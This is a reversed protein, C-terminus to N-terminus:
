EVARREQLNLPGPALTDPMPNSTSGYLSTNTSLESKTPQLSPILALPAPTDTSPPRNSTFRVPMLSPTRASPVLQCSALLSKAPKEISALSVWMWATLIPPHTKEAILPRPVTPEGDPCVTSPKTM